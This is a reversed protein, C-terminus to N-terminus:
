PMERAREPPGDHVVAMLSTTDKLYWGPVQLIAYDDHEMNGKSDMLTFMSIGM